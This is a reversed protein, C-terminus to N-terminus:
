MVHALIFSSNMETEKTKKRAIIHTYQWPRIWSNAYPSTPGELEKERRKGRGRV